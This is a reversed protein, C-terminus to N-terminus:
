FMLFIKFYFNYIALYQLFIYLFLENTNKLDFWYNCIVGDLQMNNEAESFVGCLINSFFNTKVSQRAFDSIYTQKLM